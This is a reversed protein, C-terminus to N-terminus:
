QGRSWNTIWLASKDSNKVSAPYTKGNPGFGATSWLDYTPNYGKTPTKSPDKAVEAQYATSYGYSNGFPDLIGKVSDYAYTNNVVATTPYIQNPKFPYYTKSGTTAMGSLQQFLLRSSALYLDNLPDIPAASVAISKADLTDSNADRPMSGNDSEYSGIAAELAKIEATARARASKNQAFTMTGIVLGALVLIISLVTLLEILTFAGQRIRSATQQHLRSSSQAFM